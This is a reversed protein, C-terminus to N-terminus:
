PSLALRGVPCPVPFVVHLDAHCKRSRFDPRVRRNNAPERLLHLREAVVMEGADVMHHLLDGVARLVPPGIVREVVHEVLGQGQEAEEGARGPPELKCGRNEDERLPLRRQDGLLRRFYVEQGAAPQAQADADAPVGHFELDQPLGEAVAGPPHLLLNGTQALEPGLRGATEGAFPVLMPVGADVRQRKLTRNREPDPCELVRCDFTRPTEAVAPEGIRPHRGAILHGALDRQRPARGFLGPAVRGREADVPGDM